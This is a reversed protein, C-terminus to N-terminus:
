IPMTKAMLGPSLNAANWAAAIPFVVELVEEEVVDGDADLAAGEVEEVEEDM